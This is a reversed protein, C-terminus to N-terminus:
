AFNCAPQPPRRWPSDNTGAAGHAGHATRAVVEAVFEARPMEFGGLSELHPTHFQADILGIGRQRCEGALALLAVKSADRARSFMSEGWFMGGLSVGYLGGVLEGDKWVEVSHADGADHLDAYASVMEPVIWTADPAQSKTKDAPSSEIIETFQNQGLPMAGRNACAAVVSTFDNDFGIHYGRNRASQRLSRPVRLAEPRFVMRQEPSWWLIPEGTSYWPFIGHSYAHRLWDPTLAGGAALLGPPDKFAENV